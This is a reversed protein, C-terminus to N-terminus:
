NEAVVRLLPQLKEPVLEVEDPDVILGRCIESGCACPEALHGSFADDYSLEEGVEIDRLAFWWTKVTKQEEDWESGIETNPECSHNIWRTQDVLDMYLPPGENGEADLEYGPLILSYSDDFEDDDRYMVGDGHVIIDGARFTRTTVVGYGHIRSHTVKLGALVPM